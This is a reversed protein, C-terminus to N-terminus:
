PSVDRYPYLRIDDFYVVGTGGPQPNAKDGFGISISDINTLVVGQAAFEQLNISWETWTSIQTADPDNHDVVAPTGGSNSLAVYMQAPDNTPMEVGIAQQTFPGSATTQVDSFVAESTVGSSHSTFALGIYVPDTMGVTASEGEQQWQGDLFVYSTFTNGQRVLKISAPPSIGVLTRSSSSSGGTISRWQFTAGDGSGSTIAVFANKSGADLTERIMVGAKTWDGSGPVWLISEVTATIEGDGSLQKYAYRFEDAEDWIDYGTATMTYTGAPGEVFDAPNGRFRLSLAEIGKKTWDQPASLTFTAESYNAQGSNDYFVPMAQRGGHVIATEVYHEDLSWDPAPYGATAGNTPIGYGDLWTSWIENPPYDNYDEFDDVVFYEQTTFNWIDGQWTTTTEAENVEDIRWFYTTGLDLSLPGYSAETVTTVPANSDAVAQEDPSFYVNHEAAERGVRFSLTMDVPEDITGIAVDTTGSDPSPERAYVPIYFFRVESLAYQDVFEGWNSNATLRIYKAAAGGFDVTTNHAYDLTGPARAFEHTTGLTTYDNGDVSYEITVDKCGLGLFSEMTQNSNWVWMEHLKYVKDLEYEIWAGNPEDGSLWMGVSEMSHLDDADLGSGNITNEPDMGEQGTSSATATIREGAIPYSFPETTFSWVYGEFITSDPPANVEDIRWYYTTGFDLRQPLAYSNASQTIGGIGDNVDDFSDSFYVKHGNTPAALEGPEWSLVVDRPADTAENAPNPEVAKGPVFITANQYDEDNPVYDPSDTWVFVDWFVLEKGQRHFIYMTNEGNQLEKTHAEEHDSRTWGWPPGMDEEFVRHEDTFEAASSGGPFPPGPPIVLDGPDGEVLMFDSENDPNLVRGWFYWTGGKGGAASIDFTWRIMGGAGGARTIAQGFAGAEDVVPYYEDTAPNREDFDEAEFWIQHAGGYSSIKFNEVAHVPSALGVALSLVLVLYFLKKSM